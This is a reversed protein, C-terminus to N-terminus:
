SARLVQASAQTEPVAKAVPNLWPMMARLERGVHEIQHQANTRRMAQFSPRGAQNELIWRTAFAGNQIEQLIRRMEERARQDIIRPGTIYEGWEATDSIANNMYNMGGQYMLGLWLNGAPDM